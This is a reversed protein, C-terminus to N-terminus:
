IEINKTKLWQRFEDVDYKIHKKKNESSPIPRLNDLCNIIKADTIGHDLFAKIPFIYDLDWSSHKVINWSPYNEIHERLETPTYGLLISSKTQKKKGTAVLTHHLAAYYRNRLITNIRVKERDLNWQKNNSGSRKNAGCKDCRKGCQFNAFSIYSENGCECVYRMRTQNNRYDDELLKCNNSEFYDKVYAYTLRTTQTTATVGCQKCRKGQCFNDFRITTITGCVCKYKM